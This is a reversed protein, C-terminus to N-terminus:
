RMSLPSPLRPKLGLGSKSLPKLKSNSERQKLAESGASGLQMAFAKLDFVLQLLQEVPMGAQVLRVVIEPGPVMCSCPSVWASDTHRGDIM